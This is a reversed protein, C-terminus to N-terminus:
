QLIRARCYSCSFTVFGRALVIFYRTAPPEADDEAKEEYYPWEDREEHRRVREGSDESNVHRGVVRRRWVHQESDRDTARSSRTRAPPPSPDSEDDGVAARVGQDEDEAVVDETGKWGRRRETGHPGSPLRKQKMGGSQDYHVDSVVDDDDDNGDNLANKSRRDSTKKGLSDSDSIRGGDVAADGVTPSLSPERVARQALLTRGSKEFSRDDRLPLARAELGKTADWVQNVSGDADALEARTTSRRSGGDHGREDGASMRVRTPREKRSGITRRRSGSQRTSKRSPSRRLPTPAVKAARSFHRSGIKEDFHKSKNKSSVTPTTLRSVVVSGRSAKASSMRRSPSHSMSQVRQRRRGRERGRPSTFAAQVQGDPNGQDAIVIVDLKAEIAAGANELRATVRDLHDLRHRLASEGADFHAATRTPSRGKRGNVHSDRKSPRRQRAGASAASPVWVETRVKSGETVDNIGRIPSPGEKMEGWGSDGDADGELIGKSGRSAEVGPRVRSLRARGPVGVSFGATDEPGVRAREHITSGDRRRRGKVQRATSTERQGRNGYVATIAVKRDKEQTALRRRRSGTKAQAATAAATSAAEAERARAELRTAATQAQVRLRKCARNHGEDARANSERARERRAGVADQRRLAAVGELAKFAGEM